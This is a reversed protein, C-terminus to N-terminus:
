YEESSAVSDSCDEGSVVNMIQRYHDPFLNTIVNPGAESFSLVKHDILEQVRLQLPWCDGTSNGIHGVQYAYSANPNHKAHYPFTASPIEKPMIAGQQILYLLLQAYSVPILDRHPRKRDLWRRQGQSQNRNDQQNHSVPAQPPQQYQPQYALQQYQAAFIYPYPYYPVLHMPAQFQPFVNEIVVSAEAEKKKAFGSSKKAVTQSDVNAIKGTKLRNKIREGITVIYAFNSSSSGVM